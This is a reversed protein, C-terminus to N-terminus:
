GFSFDQDSQVVRNRDPGSCAHLALALAWARDAHGKDTHPADYRINGASTVIRRISCIDDRLDKEAKAMRISGDSFAQSLGTALDEKTGQTFVVPEVKHKGYKRQLIEAPFAGIGTSDVCLRRVGRNFAYAVLADIDEQSTRKCTKVESVWRVKSTDRRIIVLATLDVTRGIDLGAYAEGSHSTVREVCAADILNTAIHQADNDLFKCRFLQDYVRPDNRAQKWCDKDDVQLGDAKAEDITVQHISYGAHAKPDTFLNYWLNGVGNPTSLVRLKGGHMVTGGAGDWVKEPRDHYAFEDLIVNGSYSRGGSTSPLVIVRGGSALRLQTATPRAKAWKSGLRALAEAHKASKELVEVGEREGVSIITTTDGFLGWLVAAAAFVHSAGIQRSKNVLSFRTWDLLWNQQYDYFSSLWLEVAKWESTPLSARLNALTKKSTETLM